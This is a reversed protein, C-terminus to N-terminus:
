KSLGVREFHVGRVATLRPPRPTSPRRAVRPPIPFSRHRTEQSREHPDPEEREEDRARHHAHSQQQEPPARALERLQQDAQAHEPDARHAEAEDRDALQEHGPRRPQGPDQDPGSERRHAQAGGRLVHEVPTHVM